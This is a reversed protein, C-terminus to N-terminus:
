LALAPLAGAAGARYPGAPRHLAAHAEHQQGRQDRRHSGRSRSALDPLLQGRALGTVDVRQGALYAGYTDAWGISLGEVTTAGCGNRGYYYSAPSGRRAPFPHDTDVVCFSVKVSRGVTEGGSEARLAYLSFDEFHWHYHQPHYVMCGVQRSVSVTDQSRVFYGPSGVDASDQFVRQFAFRDNTADGDGDCDSGASPEPYIEAPGTGINAITNSLRLNRENNSIYLESHPQTRLDPLLVDGPARSSAPTQAGAVLVAAGCVAAALAVLRRHRRDMSGIGRAAMAAVTAAARAARSM